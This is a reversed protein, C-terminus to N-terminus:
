QGLLIDRTPSYNLHLPLIAAGIAAAQRGVQGLIIAPPQRAEPTAAAVERQLNEATSKLVTLPLDGDLVVVQVDLICKASLVPDVLADVCDEIWTDVAPHGSDLIVDLDARSEIRLGNGRLHRILSNISARTLVIDARRLPKPATALRSPSTPMLGVDGANGHAGRLYDGGLVVGGGAASGIFIYLFDSIERGRGLFLEAVVAATGDNEVQAELGTARQMHAAIDFGNWADLTDSTIDLERRWSNMNYPMAIGLGALRAPRETSLGTRLARVDEALLEVAEDPLPFPRERRRQAVINGSFDVLIADLSRRGIKVGIAHAGKPDLRLITAPQGREGQRKGDSRVLGASELEQVIVGATNATLNARRALDAKSATGMRRLLSLIVRENFQRVAASNSGQGSLGARM